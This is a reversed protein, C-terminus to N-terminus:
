FIGSYHLPVLHIRNVSYQVEIIMVGWWGGVNNIWHTGYFWKWIGIQLRRKFHTISSIASFAREWVIKVSLFIFNNTKQRIHWTWPWPHPHCFCCGFLCNWWAILANRSTIENSNKWGDYNRWLFKHPIKECRFKWPFEVSFQWIDFTKKETMRRGLGFFQRMRFVIRHCDALSQCGVHTMLFNLQVVFRLVCLFIEEIKPRIFHIGAYLIRSLVSQLAECSVGFKAININYHYVHGTAREWISM